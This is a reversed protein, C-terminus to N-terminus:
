SIRFLRLSRLVRENEDNEVAEALAFFGEGDYLAVVTGNEFSTGIKKQYIPAGSLALRAFFPPLTVKPFSAFIESLPILLGEREEPPTAELQALTLCKELPYGAAEARLLRSMVAGTGLADGIDACLTRIYTGKSCHVFLRYEEDSLREADLRYVTIPRAEREVTKGTRALDCLKKGGVKLASYMPPTQLIEGRFRDLVSLVEVEKPLPVGSPTITGTIDETDSRVGLRLHAIYEKEGTLLFESAKVARGVLVPLVGEALPDLTGTHGTKEGGFLRSVRKVATQSTMGQEKYLLFLGCAM